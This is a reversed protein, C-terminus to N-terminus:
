PEINLSEQEQQKRMKERAPKVVFIYRYANCLFNIACFGGCGLLMYIPNWLYVLYICYYMLVFCSGYATLMTSIYEAVILSVLMSLLYESTNIEQVSSDYVVCFLIRAPKYNEVFFAALVTGISILCHSLLFLARLISLDTFATYIISICYGLYGGLFIGGICFHFYMKLNSSSSLLLFNKKVDQQCQLVFKLWGM